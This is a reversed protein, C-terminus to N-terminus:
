SGSPLFAVTYIAQRSWDLPSGLWHVDLPDVFAFGGDGHNGGGSLGALCDV